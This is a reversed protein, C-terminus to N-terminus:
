VNEEGDKEIINDIAEKIQIYGNRIAKDYDIIVLVSEEMLEQVEKDAHAYYEAINQYNFALHRYAAKILFEKIDKDIESRTIKEILKKTKDEKVLDELSPKEGTIDYHPINVEKTYQEEEVDDDIDDLELQLDFDSFDISLSDLDFNLEELEELELQLMDNDWTAYESVKNDAIRFAKIQAKSLDNAVVCPVEELGLKKSALLRTHGTVVTNDKDIVIPVKFGFEKISSAVKDIANENNRPNNIYPILDNVKKMQIQM